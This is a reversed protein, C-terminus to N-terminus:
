TFIIEALGPVATGGPDRAGTFLAADDMRWIEFGEAARPTVERGALLIPAQVLDRIHHAQDASARYDVPVAVAGALRIGWLAAIWEGRNEGWLVVKGGPGIGARKLRAAFAESAAAIEGYTWTRTRFGNDHVVFPRRANAPAAVYDRYFAALSTRRM